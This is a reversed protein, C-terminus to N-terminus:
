MQDIWFQRDIVLILIMICLTVTVHLIIVALLNRETLLSKCKIDKLTLFIQSLVNMHRNLITVFLHAFEFELHLSKDVTSLWVTKLAEALELQDLCKFFLM